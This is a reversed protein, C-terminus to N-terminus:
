PPEMVGLRRPDWFGDKTYPHVITNDEKMCISVGEHQKSLAHILLMVFNQLMM